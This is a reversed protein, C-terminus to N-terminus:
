CSGKGSRRAPRALSTDRTHHRTCTNASMPMQQMSSNSLISSLSRVAMWSTISCCVTEMALAPMVVVSLARVETRAAALGAHYAAWGPACAEHEPQKSSRVM